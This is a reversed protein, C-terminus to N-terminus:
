LKGSGQEPEPRCGQGEGTQSAQAPSKQGARAEILEKRARAGGRLDKRQAQAEEEEQLEDLLTMAQTMEEATEYFDVVEGHYIIRYQDILPARLNNGVSEQEHHRVWSNNHM